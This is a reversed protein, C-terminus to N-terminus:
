KKENLVDKISKYIAWGTIGVVALSGFLTVVGAYNNTLQTKIETTHKPSNIQQIAVSNENTATQMNAYNAVFFIVITTIIVVVFRLAIKSPTKM